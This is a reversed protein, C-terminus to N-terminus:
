GTTEDDEGLPAPPTRGRLGAPRRRLRWFRAGRIERLLSPALGVQDVADIADFPRPPWPSIQGPHRGEVVDVVDVVDVVGRRLACPSGEAKRAFGPPQSEPRVMSRRGETRPEDVDDADDIDDVPRSRPLNEGSARGRLCFKELIEM